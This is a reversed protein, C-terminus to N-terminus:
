NELPGAIQTSESEDKVEKAYDIQYCIYKRLLVYLHCPSLCDSTKISQYETASGLPRYDNNGNPKTPNFRRQTQFKTAPFM